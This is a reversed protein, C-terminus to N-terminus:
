EKILYLLAFVIAIVVGSAIFLTSFDEVLRLIFGIAGILVIGIASVKSIVKYEEKNPKRTVRLVRSCEGMFTKFKEFAM